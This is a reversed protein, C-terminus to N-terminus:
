KKELYLVKDKFDIVANHKLLFDGGLIGIVYPLKISRYLDNIHNLSTFIAIEFNTKFHSLKFSSIKGTSLNEIKSNFGSSEMDSEIPIIESDKFIDNNVDFISNSAGTDIILRATHGNIKAKILLHYGGGPINVTKLPTKYRKM